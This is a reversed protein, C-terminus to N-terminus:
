ARNKTEVAEGVRRQGRGCILTNQKSDCGGCWNARLVSLFSANPPMTLNRNSSIAFIVSEPTNTSASAIGQNEV